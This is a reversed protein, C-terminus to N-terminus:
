RSYSITYYSSPFITTALLLFFFTKEDPLSKEKGMTNNLCSVRIGIIVLFIDKFFILPNTVFWTWNKHSKLYLDFM